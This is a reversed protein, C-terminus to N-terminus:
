KAITDEVHTNTLDYHNKDTYSTTKNGHNKTVEYAISTKVNQEIELIIDLFLIRLKKDFM